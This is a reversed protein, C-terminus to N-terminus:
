LCNQGSATTWSKTYEPDIQISQTSKRTSQFRKETKVENQNRLDLTGEIKSSKRASLGTQSKVTMLYFLKSLWCLLLFLWPKLVKTSLQRDPALRWPIPPIDTLHCCYTNKWVIVLNKPNWKIRPMNNNCEISNIKKLFNVNCITEPEDGEESTKSKHSSSNAIALLGM